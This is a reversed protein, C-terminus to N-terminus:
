PAEDVPPLKEEPMWKRLDTLDVGWLKMVSKLPDKEPPLCGPDPHQQLLQITLKANNGNGRKVNIRHGRMENPNAMQHKLAMAAGNTLELFVDQKLEQVFCHLFGKWAKKRRALCGPCAAENRFHPESRGNNWHYWVGKIKQGFILFTYLQNAKLRLIFCEPGPMPPEDDFDVDGPHGEPYQQM